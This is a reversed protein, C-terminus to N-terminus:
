KLLYSDDQVPLTKGPLLSSRIMAYLRQDIPQQPNDVLSFWTRGEHGHALMSAPQPEKGYILLVGLRCVCRDTGHHPCACGCDTQRSVQLDFTVAVRLGHGDLQRTIGALAQDYPEEMTLFPISNMFSPEGNDRTYLITGPCWLAIKVILIYANHSM